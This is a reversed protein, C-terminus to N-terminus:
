VYLVISALNQRLINLTALDFTNYSGQKIDASLLRTVLSSIPKSWIRLFGNPYLLADGALPKM